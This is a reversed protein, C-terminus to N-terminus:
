AGLHTVDYCRDNAIAAFDNASAASSSPLPSGPPPAPPAPSAGHKDAHCLSGSTDRMAGVALAPAQEARGTTPRLNPLAAGLIAVWSRELIFM